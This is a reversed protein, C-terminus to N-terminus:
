KKRLADGQWEALRDSLALLVLFVTTGVVAVIGLVRTIRAGTTRRIV